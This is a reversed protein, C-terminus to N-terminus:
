GDWHPLWSDICSSPHKYYWMKKRVCSVQCKFKPTYVPFPNAPMMMYCDINVNNCRPSDAVEPIRPTSHKWGDMPLILHTIYKRRVITDRNWELDRVSCTLTMEEFELDSQKYPPKKVNWLEWCAPLYKKNTNEPINWYVPNDLTHWQQM